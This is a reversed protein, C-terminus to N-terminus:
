QLLEDVEDDYIFNTILWYKGNNYLTFGFKLYYKDFKLLYFRKAIANGIRKETLFGSARMTGYDPFINKAQNEIKVELSDIKASTIATNQKFLQMAESFKEQALNEMIQDCVNDIKDKGADTSLNCSMFILSLFLVTLLRTM